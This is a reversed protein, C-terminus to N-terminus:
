REAINQLCRDITEALTDVHATICELHSGKLSHVSVQPALRAWAQELHDGRHLLDESLLVAARGQYPRPRYGASAYLFTAPVDRENRVHAEAGRAHAPKKRLMNWVSVLRNRFQRILLSGRTQASEKQWLAFQARRLWWKRFHNIRTQENWGLLRGFIESVHRLARLTKDEPEADILLLMEVPEGAAVLQQALEYAVIGGLCFGGVIYPGHPRVARLDQLHAKAMEEVSPVEALSRINQPPIVYFPQESGLARSLKLSYFGGGFLDGHLYFFPTRTGTENISLLPPSEERARRALEAALHEVTPDKAFASPLIAKGFSDAARQLMQEAMLFSGGLEFFNDRIQIGPVRLIEEWIAILELQLGLYPRVSETTRASKM